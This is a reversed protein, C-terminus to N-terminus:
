IMKRLIFGYTHMNELLWDYHSNYRVADLDSCDNDMRIDVALGSQHESFGPRTWYRDAYEEGYSAAGNNFLDTQYAYSRYASCANLIFGENSAAEILKEFAEAAEKRMRVNENEGSSPVQVLDSIEHIVKEDEKDKISELKGYAEEKIKEIYDNLEKHYKERIVDKEKEFDAIKTDLENQLLRNKELEESLSKKISENEAIEKALREILEEQKSQNIKLYDKADEILRQNDFYRSAIDIANSVGISNEIYKYTPKLKEMDFGVSSLLISEENYAFEVLTILNQHWGVGIYGGNKGDCAHSQNRDEYFGVWLCQLDVLVEYLAVDGIFGPADHQYM